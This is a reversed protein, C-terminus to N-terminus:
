CTPLVIFRSPRLTWSAVLRHPWRMGTCAPLSAQIQGSCHATAHDMVLRLMNHLVLQDFRCVSDLRRPEKGFHVEVLQLPCQVVTDIERGVSQERMGALNASSRNVAYQCHPIPAQIKRQFLTTPEWRRVPRHMQDRRRGDGLRLAERQQEFGRRQQEGLILHKCRHGARHSKRRMAHWRNAPTVFVERQMGCVSMRRPCHSDGLDRLRHALRVAVSDDCPRLSALSAEEQPRQSVQELSKLALRTRKCADIGGAHHCRHDESLGINARDTSTFKM